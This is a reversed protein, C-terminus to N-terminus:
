IYGLPDDMVDPVAEECKKMINTFMSIRWKDINSFSKLKTVAARFNDVKKEKLATIADKLFIAERTDEFTPDEM